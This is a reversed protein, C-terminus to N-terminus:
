KEVKKMALFLKSRAFTVKFSNELEPAHEPCLYQLRYIYCYGEGGGWRFINATAMQPFFLNLPVVSWLIHYISFLHQPDPDPVKKVGPDPIPKKRIGSGVM